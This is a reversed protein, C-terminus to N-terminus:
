DSSRIIITIVNQQKQKKWTKGMQHHFANGHNGM